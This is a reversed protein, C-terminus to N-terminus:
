GPPKCVPGAEGAALPRLYREVGFDAIVRSAEHAPDIGYRRL